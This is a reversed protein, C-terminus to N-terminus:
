YGLCVFGNMGVRLLVCPFNSPFHSKIATKCESFLIELIIQFVYKHYHIKDQVKMSFPGYQFYIYVESQSIHM